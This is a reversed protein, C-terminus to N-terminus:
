KKEINKIGGLGQAAVPLFGWFIIGGIAMWYDTNPLICMLGASVAAVIWVSWKATPSFIQEALHYVASLIMAFLAFWGATLVCAVLAEFREAVGFLNVGKSFEYFSNDAAEAVSQGMAADMLASAAVAVLGLVLATWRATKSSSRPLFIGLCPILLLSILMGDPAELDGRIRDPNIDATGALFVIGLVPLVLWVLTAGTRATRFAGQQAALTSLLLLITPIAPFADAEEWCTGSIKALGGLLVTLWGLELVCLWRPWSERKCTLVCFSLAGCAIATLLVTVWGNRGVISFIPGVAAVLLWANLQAAPIKSQLGNM